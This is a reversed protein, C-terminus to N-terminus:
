VANIQFAPQDLTVSDSYPMHGIDWMASPSLTLHSMDYFSQDLCMHTCHLELDTHTNTATLEPAVDAVYLDILSM